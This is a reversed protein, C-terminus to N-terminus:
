APDLVKGRRAATGARYMRLEGIHRRIHRNPSTAAAAAIVPTRAQRWSTPMVSLGGVSRVEVSQPKGYPVFVQADQTLV